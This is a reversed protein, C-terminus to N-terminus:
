HGFTRAVPTFAGDAVNVEVFIEFFTNVALGSEVFVTHALPM